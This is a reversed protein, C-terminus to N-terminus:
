APSHLWALDTMRATPAFGDWSMSVQVAEDAQLNLTRQTASSSSRCSAGSQEPSAAVETGASELGLDSHCCIKTGTSTNLVNQSDTKTRISVRHLTTSSPALPNGECPAFWLREQSAAQSTAIVAYVVATLVTSAAKETAPLADVVPSLWLCM